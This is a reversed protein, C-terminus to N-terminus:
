KCKVVIKAKRNKDLKPLKLILLGNKELAEAQDVDIEEPLLINRSFSGWFLEKHYYNDETVEYEEERTGRITVLDRAIDIDIDSPKVGALMARVIIADETNLVDVALQGDQPTENQEFVAVSEEEFDDEYFKRPAHRAVPAEREEFDFDDFDDAPVVGTLKEFFSRKKTPNKRFM